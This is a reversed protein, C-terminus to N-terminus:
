QLKEKQAYCLHLALNFTDSDNSIGYFTAKRETCVLYKIHPQANGITLNFTDSDNRISYVTAKRKKCYGSKPCVTSSISSFFIDTNRISSFLFFRSWAHFWIESDLQLSWYQVQWPFIDSIFSLAYIKLNNILNTLLHWIIMDLIMNNTMRKYDRLSIAVIVLDPKSDCIM